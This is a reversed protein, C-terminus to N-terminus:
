AMRVDPPPVRVVIKARKPEVIRPPHPQGGTTCCYMLLAIAAVTLVVDIAIGVKEEGM